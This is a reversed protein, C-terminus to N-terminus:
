TLAYASATAIQPYVPNAAAPTITAAALAATTASVAMFRTVSSRM